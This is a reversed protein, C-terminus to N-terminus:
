KPLKNVIELIEETVKETDQEGNIKILSKPFKELLFEYGTYLKELKESKEYISPAKDLHSLRDAATKTLAHLYFTFDPTIFGHYMSLISLSVLLQDANEDRGSEFKDLLGYPISSWFSRDSIVVKGANLAPVVIEEQHIARDAAFLYQLSVAPVNIESQLIEHVLKGVVTDRRPEHTKVVDRGQGKFYEAIKEVQTTKGSGDIGELAIYLGKYSNKKLDIDFNVNYTM